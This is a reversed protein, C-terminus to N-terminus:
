TWTFNIVTFKRVMIQGQWISLDKWSRKFSSKVKEFSVISDRNKVLLTSTPNQIKLFCFSIFHYYLFSITPQKCKKKKMKEHGLIFFLQFLSLFKVKNEALFSLSHAVLSRIFFNSGLRSYFLPFPFLSTTYTPSFFSSPCKQRM